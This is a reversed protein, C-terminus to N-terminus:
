ECKTFISSWAYGLMCKCKDTVGEIHKAYPISYCYIKCSDDSPDYLFKKPCRCKAKDLYSCYSCKGTTPYYVLPFVCLCRDTTGLVPGTSYDM